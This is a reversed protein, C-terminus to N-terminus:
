LTNGLFQSKQFECTKLVGQLHPVWFTRQWLILCLSLHTLPKLLHRLCTLVALISFHLRSYIIAIKNSWHHRSAKICFHHVWTSVNCSFALLLYFIFCYAKQWNMLAWFWLLAEGMKLGCMLLCYLVLKLDRVQGNFLLLYTNPIYQYLSSSSNRSFIFYKRLFFCKQFIINWNQFGIM